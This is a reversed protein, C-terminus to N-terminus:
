ELFENLDRILDDSNRAMEKQLMKEHKRFEVVIQPLSMKRYRRDRDLGMLEFAKSLPESLEKMSYNRLMNRSHPLAAIRSYEQTLIM